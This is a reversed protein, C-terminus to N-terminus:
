VTNRIISYIDVGSSNLIIKRIVSLVEKIQAINIQKKLAEKQAILVAFANIDM